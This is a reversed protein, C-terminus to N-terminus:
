QLNVNFLNFQPSDICNLVLDDIRLNVLKIFYDDDLTVHEALDFKGFPLCNLLLNSCPLLTEFSYLM